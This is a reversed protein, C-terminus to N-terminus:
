FKCVLFVLIVFQLFRTLLDHPWYQRLCKYTPLETLSAILESPHVSIRVDFHSSFRSIEEKVTPIRLDKRIVSNTLYWPANVILQLVKSQFCVLIKVNSNSTTVWLQIGYTGIPKLMVKYILLKNNTSNPSADLYGNCRPSPSVLSNINQLFSTTGPLDNTSIFDLTNSM